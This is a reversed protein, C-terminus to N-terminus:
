EIERETHSFHFSYPHTSLSESANTTYIFCWNQKQQLKEESQKKRQSLRPRRQHDLSACCTPSRDLSASIWRFRLPDKGAEELTSSMWPPSPREEPTSPTPSPMVSSTRSSSRSSEEPRRTSSDPSVSSVVVDLSVDSPPSPSERSTTEGM